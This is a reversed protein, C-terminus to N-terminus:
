VPEDFLHLECSTDQLPSHPIGLGVALLQSVPAQGWGELEIRIVASKEPCFPGLDWHSRM